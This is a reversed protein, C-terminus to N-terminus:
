KPGTSRFRGTAPMDAASAMVETRWGLLAASNSTRRTPGFPRFTALDLMPMLGFDRDTSQRRQGLSVFNSCSM